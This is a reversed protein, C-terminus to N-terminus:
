AGPTPGPALEADIAGALVGIVPWAGESSNGLVSVTTRTGIIHTSRFSAGADYGELVLAPGTRHLFFGMGARLDEEPVDHRPRTMEEVSGPSVIRGGLFALWFRHLDAATTFAGGDGNGLVPLHLTNVLDGEDHVYGQAADVPLENLPLFDTAGLGAPTFVLRRVVDHYTEGTVREILVALVMYGGNCYSFREGPAYKQEHGELMPLFAVATTLTHSPLTLVYDSVEWDADEDLYDGIGSTHTLLHEITVADDILPLDGGLLDRVPQDLRLAGDEVLRMVALATFAKSGSAIAIRADVVMPAGLARQRYGECRELTRRDGVDVTVVGTFSSTAVAEDFTSPDIHM